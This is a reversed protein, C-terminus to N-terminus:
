WKNDDVKKGLLGHDGRGSQGDTGSKFTLIYNNEEVLQDWVEDTM